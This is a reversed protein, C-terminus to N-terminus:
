KFISFARTDNIGRVPERTPTALAREAAKATAEVKAALRKAMDERVIARHQCYGQAPCDCHLHTAYVAVEYAAAENRSSSVYVVHVGDRRTGRAVIKIGESHARELAKAYTAQMNVTASAM